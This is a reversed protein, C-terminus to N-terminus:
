LSTEPSLHLRTPGGMAFMSQTRTSLSMDLIGEILSLLDYPVSAGLFPLAPGERGQAGYAKPQSKPVQFTVKEQTSPAQAKFAPTSSIDVLITDLEGGACPRAQSDGCRRQSPCPRERVRSQGAPSAATHQPHTQKTQGELEPDGPQTNGWPHSPDSDREKTEAKGPRPYIRLYGAKKTNGQDPQKFLPGGPSEM